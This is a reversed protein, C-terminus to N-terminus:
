FGTTVYFVALSGKMLMRGQRTELNELKGLLFPCPFTLGQRKKIEISVMGM